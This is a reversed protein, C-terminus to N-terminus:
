YRCVYVASSGGVVVVVEMPIVDSLEAWMGSIEVWTVLDGVNSGM